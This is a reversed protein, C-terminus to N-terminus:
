EVSQRIIFKLKWPLKIAEWIIKSSMKSQGERRESFLIPYEMVSCGAKILRYKLEVLFSYGEAKINNLNIKSLCTIRYANFGSTIDKIALRLITKVYFNALKSLVKRFFSWNEVGGGNVYRSGIVVDSENNLESVLLPVANFDHSFDADMTVLYDYSRELIWRFGDISSRGYGFNETRHIIFLNNYKQKLEDILQQTGDTSNDDVILISIDPMKKFIAPIMKELNDKENLTPILVILNNM